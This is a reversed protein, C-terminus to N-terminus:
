GTIHKELHNVSLLSLLLFRWQDMEEALSLKVSKIPWSRSTLYPPNHPLIARKKEAYDRQPVVKQPM